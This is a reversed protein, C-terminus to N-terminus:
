EQSKSRLSAQSVTRYRQPEDVLKMTKRCQTCQPQIVVLTDPREMYKLHYTNLVGRVSGKKVVTGKVVVTGGDVNKEVEEIAKRTASRECNGPQEKM